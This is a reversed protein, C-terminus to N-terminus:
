LVPVPLRGSLVDAAIDDLLRDATFAQARLLDIAQRPTIHNAHITLGQALWVLRRRRSTPGDMWRYVPEGNPGTYMEAELLRAAVRAAIVKVDSLYDPQGGPHRYFSLSGIATGRSLLPYAFVGHYDTRQTLQATYTPWRSWAPSDPDHIDTLVIPLRSSYAEFCPGERVTFQLAEGMAGHTGNAGVPIAIDASVYVSIAAGEVGLVDVVARCLRDPLLQQDTDTETAAAKMEFRALVGVGSDPATSRPRHEQDTSHDSDNM